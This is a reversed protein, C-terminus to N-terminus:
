ILMLNNANCSLRRIKFCFSGLDNIICAIRVTGVVRVLNLERLHNFTLSAFFQVVACFGMRAVVDFQVLGKM